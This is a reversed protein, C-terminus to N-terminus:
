FQIRKGSRYHDLWKQFDEAEIQKRFEAINRYFDQDDIKNIQNIRYFMLKEGVRLIPSYYGAEHNIMDEILIRSQQFGPIRSDLTLNAIRHLGGLFYLLSDPQAGKQLESILKSIYERGREIKKNAEFNSIIKDVSQDFSLQVSSVKRRLFIVAYGNDTKVLQTLKENRWLRMLAPRYPSIDGLGPFNEEFSLLPTEFIDKKDAYIYCDSFYTTSDFVARANNYALSDAKFNKLSSELIEWIDLLPYLGEPHHKIYNIILFGQPIAIPKSFNREPINKLFPLIEKPFKDLEIIGDPLFYCTDAFAWKVLNYDIGNRLYNAALNARESDLCVLFRCEVAESHFYKNQNKWYLDIIELSDIIANDPELNYLVGALAVSDSTTFDSIHEQYYNMLLENDYTSVIETKFYGSEILDDFDPIYSPYISSLVFFTEIGGASVVGYVTGEQVAEAIKQETEDRFPYKDLYIAQKQLVLNNDRAAWDLYEENFLYKELDSIVNERNNVLPWTRGHLHEVLDIRNVILAPVKFEELHDYFYLRYEDINEQFDTDSIYAKWVQSKVDALKVTSPDYKDILWFLIIGKELEWPQSIENHKLSIASKIMDKPINGTPSDPSIFGTTLRPYGVPLDRSLKNRVLDAEALALKRQEQIFAKNRAAQNLLQVEQELIEQSISDEPAYLVLRDFVSIEEYNGEINKEAQRSFDEYKIFVFGLKYKEPPKFYSKHDQFYKRAGRATLQPSISVDELDFQAYSMDIKMNQQYFRSLLQNDSLELKKNILARTKEILIDEHMTALIQRIRDGEKLQAFKSYDFENDTIFLPHDAFEKIFLAETEEDSVRINQEGAYLLLLKEEILSDMAIQRKTIHALSDPLEAMKERFEEGEISYDEVWALPVAWTIVTSCCIIATLLLKLMILGKIKM